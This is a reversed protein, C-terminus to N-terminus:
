GLQKSLQRLAPIMVRRPPATLDEIRYNTEIKVSNEGPNRKFTEWSM